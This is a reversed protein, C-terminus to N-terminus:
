CLSFLMQGCFYTIYFELDGGSPLMKVPCFADKVWYLKM